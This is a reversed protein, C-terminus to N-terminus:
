RKSQQQVPFLSEVYLKVKSLKLFYSLIGGSVGIKRFSKNKWNFCHLSDDDHVVHWLTKYIIIEETGLVPIFQLLWKSDSLYSPLEVHVETWNHYNLLALKVSNSRMNFLLALHGDLETLGIDDTCRQRQNLISSPIIVSRFKETDVDFAVIFKPGDIDTEHDEKMLMETRFYIVGNVYVSAGRIGVDYQPVEDIKRWKNDGVTLVECFVNSVPINDTASISWICIAKHVKTAPCFGLEYNVPWRKSWVIGSNEANLKRSPTSQISHTIEQTSVNLIRLDADIDDLLGIMGNVLGLILKNSWDEEMVIADVSVASIARDRGEVLLDATLFIQNTIGELGVRDHGSILLCPRTKSRALHQHILYEDQEILFQWRKCVCKLRMLPKVRLRSLIESVILQEGVDCPNCGDDSRKMRQNTHVHDENLKRKLSHNVQNAAADM